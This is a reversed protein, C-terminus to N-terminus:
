LGEFRTLSNVLRCPTVDRLVYILFARTVIDFKGSIKGDVHGLIVPKAREPPLHAHRQDHTTVLVTNGSVKVV